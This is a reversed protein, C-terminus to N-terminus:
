RRSRTRSNRNRKVKEAVAPEDAKVKKKTLMRIGLLNRLWEKLDPTSDSATYTGRLYSKARFWQETRSSTQYIEIKDKIKAVIDKDLKGWMDPANAVVADIAERKLSFEGKHSGDISANWKSGKKEIRAIGGGGVLEEEYCGANIRKM